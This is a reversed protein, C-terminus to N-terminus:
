DKKAIQREVRELGAQLARVSDRRTKLRGEMDAIAKMDLAITRQIKIREVTVKDGRVTVFYEGDSLGRIQVTM